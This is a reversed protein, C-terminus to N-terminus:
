KTGAPKPAAHEPAAPKPAVRSPAQHQARKKYGRKHKPKYTICPAKKRGYRRKFPVYLMCSGEMCVSQCEKYKEKHEVKRTLGTQPDALRNYAGTGEDDSHLSTIIGKPVGKRWMGKGQKIAELQAALSEPSPTAGIAFLHGHGEGVMFTVLEPCDVLLRKYHDMKAADATCKWVQSAAHDKGKKAMFFLDLKTFEGWSHVPGYSELTNYGTLRTGHGRFRGDLIKFSDGDSWRVATKTGNLEVFGKTGPAFLGAVLALIVWTGM